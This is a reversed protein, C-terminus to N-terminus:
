NSKFEFISHMLVWKEKPKSGPIKQQFTWMLKEWEQVKENEVDMKGKHEFSFEDITEMVMCLRNYFRFIEMKLIGSDKISKLIEPWVNRHWEDYEHILHIDEKLDLALIYNRM